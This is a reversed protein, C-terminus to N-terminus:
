WIKSGDYIPRKGDLIMTILEHWQDLYRDLDFLKEATQKANQGIQVAERYNNNLLQHITEAYSMPNDPVIFGNEGSKIYEDANHYRSSLVCCGSLMAESRSRPMPSDKFPYIHILSSSFFNKYDNWDKPEFNINFHTLNHGSLENVAGKISSILNRNYYKDLGGPSLSICVRPEKPLDPWDNKDIGHIIPYGWGWRNVSEYSNLVMFNDGILKKMGDFNHPRGKSDYTTGGNIVLEENYREDWMPTGHNIVIKPVDTIVENLERYLRSKGILPDVCQQDLHLIALDYKGPEYYQVWEFEEDTYVDSPMPHHSYRTWKRNNNELFHFKIPYKKALRLLSHQHATHWAVGFINIRKMTGYGNEM